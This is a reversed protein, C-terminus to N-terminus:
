MVAEACNRTLSIKLTNLSLNIWERIVFSPLVLQPIWLSRMALINMMTRNNYSNILIQFYNISNGRAIRSKKCNVVTLICNIARLSIQKIERWVNLNIYGLAMHNRIEITDYQQYVPRAYLTTFFTTLCLKHLENIQVM